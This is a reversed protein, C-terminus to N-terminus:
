GSVGGGLPVTFMATYVSGGPRLDSRMLSLREPRFDGLRELSSQRLLQLLTVQDAPRVRPNVRGMTLHPKFSRPEPAFGLEGAADEVAAQLQRLPDLNGTLGTWIVQPREPSPFVGVGEVALVIPPAAAAARGLSAEFDRLRGGAIDGFFRVTLHIGEPRVWRVVRPPLQAKFREQVAGLQEKLSEPLELAAFIREKM